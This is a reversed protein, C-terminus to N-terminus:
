IATARMCMSAAGGCRLSKFGLIGRSHPSTTICVSFLCGACRGAVALWNVWFRSSARCRVGVRAAEAAFADAIAAEFGVGVTNGRTGPAFLPLGLGAVLATGLGAAGREDRRRGAATIKSPPSIPSNSHASNPKNVPRNPPPPEPPTADGALVFPEPAAVVVAAAKPAVDDATAPVAAALLAVPVGCDGPPVLLGVPEDVREGSPSAVRNTVAAGFVAAGFVATGGAGVREPVMMGLWVGSISKISVIGRGPAGVRAAPAFGVGTGVVTCGKTVTPGTPGGVSITIPADGSGGVGTGGVGVGPTMM